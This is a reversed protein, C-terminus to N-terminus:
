SRAGSTLATARTPSSPRTFVRAALLLVWGPLALWAAEAVAYGAWTALRGALGALLVGVRTVVRPIAHTRHGVLNVTLLWGYIAVITVVVPGIQQEFTLVGAVLLLSLAAFAAMAVMAVVTTVRVPRSSPLLGGLAWAVPALTAFQVAGLVDNVHGISFGSVPTRGYEVVFFAILALGALVGTVGSVLALARVPPAGPARTATTM